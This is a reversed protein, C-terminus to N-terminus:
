GWVGRSLRKPARTHWADTLLEGLEGTDLRDLRALVSAHGRYHDTTFFKAPDSRLLEEREELGAQWLILVGPEDSIRSFIKGTVYFGPTGYCPRETVEPLRLALRRVDDETAM